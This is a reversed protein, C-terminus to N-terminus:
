KVEKSELNQSNSHSRLLPQLYFVDTKIAVNCSFHSKLCSKLSNPGAETASKKVMKAASVNRTLSHSQLMEALDMVLICSEHAWNQHNPM